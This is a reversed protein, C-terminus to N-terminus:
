WKKGERGKLVEDVAGQQREFTRESFDQFVSRGGDWSNIAQLYLEGDARSGSFCLQIVVISPAGLPGATMIINTYM